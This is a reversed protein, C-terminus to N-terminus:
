RQALTERAFTYSTRHRVDVDERDVEVELRRTHRTPDPNSTYYGLVYYDSTEADVERMANEFDNRNVIATGGTLEALMRLTSQTRWVYDDWERMQGIINQDIDAAAVLGRPDVTYFTTNARNAARTLEVIWQVMDAQAFQQQPEYISSDFLFPDTGAYPMNPYGDRLRGYWADDGYPGEPIGAGGGYSRSMSFPNLEYGSSLYIFVKRRDRVQELNKIMARATKMAVHARFSLESVGRYGQQLQMMENPSFGDGMIRMEADRLYSRDYTLEVALSSPGTSLIAFLDGEHILTDTIRRFVDRIKPTLTSTLHLDDVFLIIIRGATDDVRRASPLIIGEQVPAPPALQNYVRGGHVLVLSAIEQPVGDESILFDEAGLDPVFVGNKNRVIVDTTVLTIGTQFIPREQNDQGPVVARTQAQAIVNAGLGTLGAVGSVLAVAGLPWLMEQVFRSPSIKM